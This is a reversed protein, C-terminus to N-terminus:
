GLPSWGGVVKCAREDVQPAVLHRQLAALIMKGEELSLGLTAAAHATPPREGAGIEHMQRTGDAGAVELMVRWRM